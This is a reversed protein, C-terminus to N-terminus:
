SYNKFFYIMQFKIKNQWSGWGSSPSPKPLLRSNHNEHKIIQNWSLANKDVTNGRPIRDYFSSLRVKKEIECTQLLVDSRSWVSVMNSFYAVSVMMFKNVKKKLEGKESELVVIFTSQISTLYKKWKHFKHHRLGGYLKRYLVADRFGSTQPSTMKRPKTFTQKKEEKEDKQEQDTGFFLIKRSRLDQWGYSELLSRAKNQLFKFLVGNRLELHSPIWSVSILLIPHYTKRFQKRKKTKKLRPLGHENTEEATGESKWLTWPHTARLFVM